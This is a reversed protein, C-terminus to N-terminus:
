DDKKDLPNEMKVRDGGCCMSIKLKILDMVSPKLDDVDVKPPDPLKPAEM